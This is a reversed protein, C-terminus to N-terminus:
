GLDADLSKRRFLELPAARGSLRAREAAFAMFHSEMADAISSINAEEYTRKGRLVATFTDFMGWDGGGHGSPSVGHRFLLETHLRRHDTLRLERGEFESFGHVTLTATAGSPFRFTVVQHDVVDNGCRFICRGYPGERLARMKGEVTLDESIAMPRIVLFLARILWPTHISAGVGARIL